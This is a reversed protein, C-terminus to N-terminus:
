WHGRLTAVVALGSFLLLLGLATWLMAELVAVVFEKM